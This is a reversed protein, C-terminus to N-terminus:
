RTSPHPASGPNFAPASPSLGIPAPRSSPASSSKKKKQQRTARAAQERQDDYYDTGVDMNLPDMHLGRQGRVNLATTQRDAVRRTPVIALVHLVMSATSVLREWGIMRM